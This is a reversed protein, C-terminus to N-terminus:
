RFGTPQDEGATVSGLGITVSRRNSTRVGVLEAAIPHVHSCETYEVPHLVALGEIEVFGQRATGDGVGAALAHETRRWAVVAFECLERRQLRADRIELTM